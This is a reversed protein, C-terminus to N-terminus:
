EINDFTSERDTILDILLVIQDLEGDQSGGTEFDDFNQDAAPRVGELCRHIPAVENM